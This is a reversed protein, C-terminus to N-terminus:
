RLTRILPHIDDGTANERPKCTWLLHSRETLLLQFVLDPVAAEILRLRLVQETHTVHQDFVIAAFHRLIEILQHLQGTDSSLRRIDDAGDRPSIRGNRDIRMDKAHRVPQLQSDTRRWQFHLLPEHLGNRLLVPGSCVVPEDPM